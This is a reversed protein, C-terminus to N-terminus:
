VHNGIHPIFHFTTQGDWNYTTELILFSIFHRDTKTMRPNWQSSHFSINDTRRDYTTELILFSIFHIDTQWVHNGIHPNFHFTQGDWDYTSKMILFSIFNQTNTQWVHNWIHSIFHFTQGEWDYTTEFMLFSIFHQRDSQWVHNGIRPIFHFTHGDTMRPNWYSSHCLFHGDTMRPKWYSSHFSINDTRRLWVHIGIHPIFHFTTRRDWDYRTELILFSMFHQRDTQWVHNGIHSIFHFTTQGDWDHTTELILFSIFHRDTETMRPKWYSSYFSIDTRRLWVLNGIHPIFHFTQGDWDYTTELILFSIFHRDTETMRPKWYSSHFSIETRRLWVHNGIHPIFHFRQGDGDYTTELILFSIFHRDSQWVHNGIHRIFHFTQGDTMRPKSYSSHFSIDTRRDYTTELILFSNFHRDSQWVHNGIHPIFHFTTQGDTMRPKWYSSHFLIDTRRDYTTELILFSIFHRDTQWVHYGIHPFFHFTQGDTM